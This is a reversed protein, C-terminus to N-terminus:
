TACCRVRRVIVECGTWARKPLYAKMEKGNLAFLANLQRKKNTTLHVWRAPLLWRKGKVLERAPGNKRFFEARRVEEVAAGAHKIIHFKDYIIKCKPLWEAISRRFPEWM